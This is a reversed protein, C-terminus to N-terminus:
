LLIYLVDTPYFFIRLALIQPMAMLPLGHSRQYNRVLIFM